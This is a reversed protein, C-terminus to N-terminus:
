SREGLAEKLLPKLERWAYFVKPSAENKSSILKDLEDIKQRIETKEESETNRKNVIDSDNPPVYYGCDMRHRGTIEAGCHCSLAM